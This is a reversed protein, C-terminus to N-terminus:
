DNSLFSQQHKATHVASAGEAAAAKYDLNAPTTRSKFFQKMSQNSAISRALNKRKTTANHAHIATKGMAELNIQSCLRSVSEVIVIATTLMAGVREVKNSMLLNKKMTM